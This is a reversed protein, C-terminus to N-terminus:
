ARTVPPPTYTHALLAPRPEYARLILGFPGAAPAPLWNARREPGPNTRAIWITLACDPDRVLGPTRDGISYRDIPNATLFLQGESTAEYMTLSWFADAPPTEGPGFRLKWPGPGDFRPSGTDPDHARMYIAERQPLAALGGLAIRARALYNQGFDGPDAGGYNWAGQAVQTAGSGGRILARAEDVGAAIEAADAAAFSGPDFAGETLRLPAIRALLPGDGPLPPNEQLLRSAASFYAHWPATRSAGAAPDRAEAAALGFGAQADAAKAVDGPGDVLVRVLAWVWPTPARIAGAPAHAQPGVVMLDGGAAPMDRPDFVQFNNSYMDMLALCAFRGHLPPFALRTPGGALDFFATAALTDNNPTTVARSAPSSLQVRGYFRGPEAGRGLFAARVAAIEMMPSVYVYAERAAARLPSDAARASSAALLAASQILLDRRRM